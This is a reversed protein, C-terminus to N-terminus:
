NQNRPIQEFMPLNNDQSVQTSLNQYQHSPPNRPTLTRGTLFEPIQNIQATQGTVMHHTHAQRDFHTESVSLESVEDPINHRTEDNVNSVGPTNNNGSANEFSANIGVHEGRESNAVVSTVDRGSSANVSRIALEIKPAVINDIATLIANQIRDEVTDLTNSM